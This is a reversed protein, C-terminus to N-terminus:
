RVSLMGATLQQVQGVVRDASRPGFTHLGIVHRDTAIVRLLIVAPAGDATTFEIRAGTRTSLGFLPGEPAPLPAHTAGSSRRRV